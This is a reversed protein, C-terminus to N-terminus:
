ELPLNELYTLLPAEKFKDVTTIRDIGSVMMFDPPKNGKLLCFGILKETAVDIIQLAVDKQVAMTQDDGGVEYYFKMKSKPLVLVLTDVEEPAAARKDSSLKYWVPHIKPPDVKQNRFTKNGPFILIVVMKGTRYLNNPDQLELESEPQKLSTYYEIKADFLGAQITKYVLLWVVGAIILLIIISPLFRKM